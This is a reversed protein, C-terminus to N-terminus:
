SASGQSHGCPQCCQAENESCMKLPLVHHQVLRESGVLRVEARMSGCLCDRESSPFQFWLDNSVVLINGVRNEQGGGYLKRLQTPEQVSAVQLPCSLTAIRGDLLWRGLVHIEGTRISQVTTPKPSRPLNNWKEKRAAPRRCSVRTLETPAVVRPKQAPRRRFFVARRDARSSLTRRAGIRPQIVTTWPLSRLWRQGFFCIRPQM